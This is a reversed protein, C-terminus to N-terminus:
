FGVISTLIWGSSSYILTISQALSNFTITQSILPLLLTARSGSVISKVAIIKIQCENSPTGNFSLISTGSGGTLNLFTILSTLNISGAESTSTNLTLSQPTKAIIGGTLNILTGTLNIDGELGSQSLGGYINVPGGRGSGYSYGGKIEVYSGTNSNVGKKDGSAIKINGGSNGKGSYLELNGGTGNTSNEANGCQILIDGGYSDPINGNGGILSIKGGIGGTYGFYGNANGCTLIINGGNDNFSNGTTLLFNGGNGISGNGTQVTINGGNNESSNGSKLIMNGGTKSPGCSVEIDGSQNFVSIGTKISINGSNGSIGFENGNSRGTQLSINGTNSTLNDISYMNINRTNVINLINSKINLEDNSDLYNYSKHIINPNEGSLLISTKKTIEVSSVKIDDIIETM